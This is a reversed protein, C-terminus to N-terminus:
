LHLWIVGIFPRFHTPCSTSAALRSAANGGCPLWFCPTKGIESGRPYFGLGGLKRQAFCVHSPNCPPGRCHNCISNFSMLTFYSWQFLQYPGTKYCVPAVCLMVFFFASVASALGCMLYNGSSSNSTSFAVKWQPNYQAVFWWIWEFNVLKWRM